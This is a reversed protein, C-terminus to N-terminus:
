CADPLNPWATAAATIHFWRNQSTRPSSRGSKPGNKGDFHGHGLRRVVFERSSTHEARARKRVPRCFTPGASPAHSSRFPIRDSQRHRASPFRAPAPNANTSPIAPKRNAASPRRRCTGGCRESRWLEGRRRLASAIDSFSPSATLRHLTRFRSPAAPSRQRVRIRTALSARARYLWCSSPESSKSPDGGRGTLVKVRAHIQGRRNRAM